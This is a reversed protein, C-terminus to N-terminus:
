KGNCPNAPAKVCGEPVTPDASPTVSPGAPATVSVPSTPPAEISDATEQFALGILTGLVQVPVIAAAAIGAVLLGYEVASSGSENKRRKHM